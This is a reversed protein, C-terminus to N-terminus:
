KSENEEEFVEPEGSWYKRGFKKHNCWMRLTCFYLIEILSTVSFGIFLGLLGGVNSLFDTIGYLENREVSLFQLEKFFVGLRSFHANELSKYEDMMGVKKLVKYGEMWDWQTVSLELDYELSNCSPLCNCINQDMQLYLLRSEKMCHYSGSGCLPTDSNKPMYFAVCNCHKLTYNAQCEEMCNYQTYSKFYQLRKENTLFCKRDKPDYGKLNDSITTFRPKISGFVASDLPVRFHKDLNPWDAPHHIVVKFGQLSEGCLYDLQSNNVYMGDFFFGGELGTLQTRRPYSEKIPEADPYGSDLSWTKVKQIKSSVNQAYEEADRLIDDINLMNFNFCLGESTFILNLYDTAKKEQGIWSITSINLPDLSPTVLLLTLIEFDEIFQSENYFESINIGSDGCALTVINNFFEEEETLNKQYMKKIFVNTYNYMEPVTKVEPCITISPFPITSISSETTAFSVIVPSTKWKNYMKVVLILCSTTVIIIIVSWVLREILYRGREGLYQIGHISTSGCYQAFYYKANKADKSKTNKSITTNLIPNQQAMLVDDKVSSAPM